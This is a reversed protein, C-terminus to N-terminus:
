VLDSLFGKKKKSPMNKMKMNKMDEDEEMPASDKPEPLSMEEEPKLEKMDEQLSDAMKQEEPMEEVLDQAKELGDELGQQDNSAITVKKLGKFHNELDGGDQDGAMNLLEELVAMKAKIEQPSMKPKM